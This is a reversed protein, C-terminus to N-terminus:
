LVVALATVFLRLVHHRTGFRPALGVVAFGFCLIAMLLVGQAVTLPVIHDPIPSVRSNDVLNRLFVIFGAAAILTMLGRMIQVRPAPVWRNFVIVIGLLAAGTLLLDFPSRSFGGLMKSAYIDFGFIHWSDTEFRLPLLAIRAIAILLATLI